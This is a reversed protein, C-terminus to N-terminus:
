GPGIRGQRAERARQAEEESRLWHFFAFSAAALFILDGPVWMIAGGLRQDTIASIGFAEPRGAYHSYLLRSSFALLGGLITNQAAGALLLYVIRAPYPLPSRFPELDIVSSWFLLASALFYLHEVIHLGDNEVAADYLTPIHWFYLGVIYLGGAVLPQRLLHLTWRPARGRARPRLVHRRLRMPLGRALPRVPAGLLLFPAAVVTLLMHQVMHASFLETVLLDIPSALAALIAVLGLTFLVGRWAPWPRAMARVGRAYLFAALLVSFIPIARAADM